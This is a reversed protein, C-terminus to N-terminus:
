NRSTPKRRVTAVLGAGLLATGFAVATYTKSASPPLGTSPLLVSDVSTSPATEVTTTEVSTTTPTTTEVSTTTPTTTEVSTTTPTTTEVSTTTPTTTTTAPASITFTKRRMAQSVGGSSTFEVEVVCSGESTFTLTRTSSEVTCGTSGADHVTYNVTGNGTTAESFVVPSASVELSTTPTWSLESEVSPTSIVQPITRPTGSLTRITTGSHNIITIGPSTLTGIALETTDPVVVVYNASSSLITTPSSGDTSSASRIESGTAWFIKGTVADVSVSTVATEGSVLIQTSQNSTGTDLTVALIAGEASSTERVAMYLTGDSIHLDNVQDFAFDGTWSLTLNTGTAGEPSAPALSDFRKLTERQTSYLHSSGSEIAIRKSGYYGGNGILQCNTGDSNIAAIGPEFSNEWLIRSRAEDVTLRAVGYWPAQWHPNPASTCDLRLRSSSTGDLSVFDLASYSATSGDTVCGTTFLYRPSEGCIPDPFDETEVPQFVLSMESSGNAPSSLSVATRGDRVTGIIVMAGVVIVALFIRFARNLTNIGM